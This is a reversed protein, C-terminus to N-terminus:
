FEKAVRANLIADFLHNRASLAIDGAPISADIGTHATQKVAALIIVGL